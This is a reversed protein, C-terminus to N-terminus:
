ALEAHAILTDCHGHKALTNAYASNLESNDLFNWEKHGNPLGNALWYLHNALTYRQYQEISLVRLGSLAILKRLNFSNFLYLHQSWYTFNQFPKSEFLALLADSSNPVEIVLRAGKNLHKSLSKIVALPDKIHEIVHFATILDYEGKLGEVNPYISFEGGLIERVRKEPEVGSVACALNKAKKIFGGNGCGFDLISKGFILEKLMSFRRDDDSYTTSRWKELSVQATGHMGSNEYFDNTIHEFSSLTVLGCNGCEMVNLDSNDRVCGKRTSFSNSACLYCIM